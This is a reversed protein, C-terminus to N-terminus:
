IFFSIIAIAYTLNLFRAIYIYKNRFDIKLRALRMKKVRFIEAIILVLSLGIMLLIKISFSFKIMAWISFGSLINISLIGFFLPTIFWTIKHIRVFDKTLSLIVLNIFIIILLVINIMTHFSIAQALSLAEM